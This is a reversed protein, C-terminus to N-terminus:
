DSIIIRMQEDIKRERDTLEFKARQEYVGVLEKYRALESTLTDNVVKLGQKYASSVKPVGEHYEDMHDIFTDHDQVEFPIDSDYSPRAEDYIPDKSSINVMFMTQATPAEDVDSDFAISNILKLSM